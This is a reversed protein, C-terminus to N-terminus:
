KLKISYKKFHKNMGRVSETITPKNWLVFKSLAGPPTPDNWNERATHRDLCRQKREPDKHKTFDSHQASGFSVTKKGAIAADFKKDSKKRPKILVGIM